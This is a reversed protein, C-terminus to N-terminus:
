KGDMVKESAEALIKSAVEATRGDATAEIMDVTGIEVLDALHHNKVAESAETQTPSPATPEPATTEAM